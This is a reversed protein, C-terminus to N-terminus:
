TGSYGRFMHVVAMGIHRTNPFGSAVETLGMFLLGYFYGQMQKELAMVPRAVTDRVAQVNAAIGVAVGLLAGVLIDSPYHIGFYIRALV